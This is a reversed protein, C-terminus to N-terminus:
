HSRNADSDVIRTDIEKHWSAPDKTVEKGSSQSRLSSHTSSMWRNQDQLNAHQFMDDVLEAESKSSDRTEQSRGVVPRVSRKSQRSISTQARARSRPRTTRSQTRATSETRGSPSQLSRKWCQQAYQETKIARAVDGTDASVTRCTTAAKM